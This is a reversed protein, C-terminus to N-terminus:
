LLTFNSNVFDNKNTTEVLIGNAWVGYKKLNDGNSELCFHYYTFIKTDEIKIFDKCKSSLLLYKNEIKNDWKGYSFIYNMLEEYEGLDNVLISHRGSIILDEILGNTDTKVMKHMCTNISVNGVQSLHNPDSIMKNKGILDIKIYGHKYTKVLDGSRLNEIPIYEEEFLNNLCLIKTGENFCLPSSLYYTGNSSNSGAISVSASTIDVSTFNGTNIDSQIWTQGGDTTYWIGSNSSNSGAIGYLGSLSIRYLGTGNIAGSSLYFTEGGNVTYYMNYNANVIGYQGSLFISNVAGAQVGQNWNIGANTSFYIYNNSDVAIAYNGSIFLNGYNSLPSNSLTWSQGGNTTYYLNNGSLGIGNSGSLSLRSFYLNSTNLTWTQGGNTTYYTFSDLKNGASLIGLLNNSQTLSLTNINYGSPIDTNSWTLGGDNTYLINGGNIQAVGNLGSLSLASNSTGTNKNSQTWLQGGNTTYYLGSGSGSGAIGNSGSLSVAFNGSTLGQSFSM